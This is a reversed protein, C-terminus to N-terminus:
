AAGSRGTRRATFGAGAGVLPGKIAIQGYLGPTASIVHPLRRLKPILEEWKAIGYEPNVELISVHATASLLSSQLTSQFGNNIALAVILATVGAAVGLVSIVTIVSIVTQKRKARLYRLAVMWEFRSM